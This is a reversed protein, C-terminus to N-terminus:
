ALRFDELRLGKEVVASQLFFQMWPTITTGILTVVMVLSPGSLQLQPRLTDHLVVGWDPRALVGSVFYAGYFASAILFVREVTRANGKLVLLWVFLAAAPVSIWKPVGFIGLAEAVGSFEAMTTGINAILLALMIYFTAKVRFRERILDALGKGTVVGMRACMEQVLLLAATIPILTWLMSYGFEAGALSYTAI